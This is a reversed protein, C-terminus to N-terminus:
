HYMPYLDREIGGLEKPVCSLAGTGAYRIEIEADEFVTRPTGM